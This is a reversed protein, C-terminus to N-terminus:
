DDSTRQVFVGSVRLTEALFSQRRIVAARPIVVEAM